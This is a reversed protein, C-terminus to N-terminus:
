LRRHPLSSLPPRLFPDTRAALRLPTVTSAVAPAVDWTLKECPGSAAAPACPVPPLTPYYLSSAQWHTIPEWDVAADQVSLSPLHLRNSQECPGVSTSSSHTSHQPPM